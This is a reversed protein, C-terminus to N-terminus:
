FYFISSIMFMHQDVDIDVDGSTVAPVDGTLDKGTRFQYAFDLAFRERSYGTGVSFGYYEDLHGKQPEPDYFIGFRVPVVYTEKIFLYETGMRVQTTDKLRGRHISENTVPNVEKGNKDKHVYNSWETQVYNSWETRYVDIATTWSDSHRYSLGVGYSAPIMLTFHRSESFFVEWFSPATQIYHASIKSKLHADFPTKYVGGLTFSGNIAWLFGLHANTGRFSTDNKFSTLGEINPGRERLTYATKWGNKGVVNDWFNLTAGLSLYPTIQLAFAPSIAYLYGKQEFDTHQLSIDGYGDDRFKNFNVIKNMEYLRQYNLSVIMNRNMLVFPYVVSAYNLGDANVRNKGDMEPFKASDYTQERRFFSYVVSVEPRELQILGAPNWSAATADDAVSIFAGGMGTARAGSGVPNLSSANEVQAGATSILLIATLTIFVFNRSLIISIKHIACM